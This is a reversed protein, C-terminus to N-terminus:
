FEPRKCVATEMCCLVVDWILGKKCILALRRSSVSARKSISQSAGFENWIEQHYVKILVWSDVNPLTYNMTIHHTPRGSINYKELMKQNQTIRAIPFITFSACWLDFSQLVMIWSVLLWYYWASDDLKINKVSHHSASNKWGNRFHSVSAVILLFQKLQGQVISHHRDGINPLLTKM